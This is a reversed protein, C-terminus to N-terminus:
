TQGYALTVPASAVTQGDTDTPFLRVNGFVDDVLVGRGTFAVGIPGINGGNTPASAFGTAFTSLSFGQAVGAPTLVLDAPAATPSALAGAAVAVGLILRAHRRIARLGM